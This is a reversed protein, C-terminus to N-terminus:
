KSHKAQKRKKGNLEKEEQKAKRKREKEASPANSLITGDKRVLHYGCYHTLFDIRGWRKNGILTNSPIVIIRNSRDIKAVKSLLQVDKNEDHKM